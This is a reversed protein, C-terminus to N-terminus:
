PRSHSKSIQTKLYSLLLNPKDELMHLNLRDQQTKGKKHKQEDNTRNVKNLIATDYKNNYLIQKLKM